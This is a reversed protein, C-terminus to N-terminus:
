TNVRTREKKKCPTKGKKQGIGVTQQDGEVTKGGSYQGDQSVVPNQNCTKKCRSEGKPPPEKGGEETRKKQVSNGWRKGATKKKPNEFTGKVKAENAPGLKGATQGVKGKEDTKRNALEWWAQNKSTYTPGNLTKQIQTANKKEGGGM